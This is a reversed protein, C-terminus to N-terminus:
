FLKYVGRKVTKIKRIKDLRYIINRLKKDNFQTEEKIKKFSVGDPHKGIFEIVETSASKTKGKSRNEFTKEQAQQKFFLGELKDLRINMERVQAGSPIDFRNLFSKLFGDLSIGQGFHEGM